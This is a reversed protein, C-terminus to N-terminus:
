DERGFGATMLSDLDDRPRVVKPNLAQQLALMMGLIHQRAERIAAEAEAPDKTQKDVLLRKVRGAKQILRIHFPRGAKRVGSLIVRLEFEDFQGLAQYSNLGHTVKFAVGPFAKEMCLKVDQINPGKDDGQHNDM